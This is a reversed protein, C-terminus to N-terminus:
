FVVNSCSKRYERMGAQYSYIGLPIFIVLLVVHALDDFSFNLELRSKKPAEPNYHVIVTEGQKHLLSDLTVFFKTGTYRENGVVYFYEIKSRFSRGTSSITGKTTAPWQTFRNPDIQQTYISWAVFLSAVLIVVFHSGGTTFLFPGLGKHNVIHQPQKM